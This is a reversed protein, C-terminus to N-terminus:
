QFISARAKADVMLVGYVQDGIGVMRRFLLNDTVNSSPKRRVSNESFFLPTEFLRRRRIEPDDIREVAGRIERM